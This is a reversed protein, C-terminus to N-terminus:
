RPWQVDSRAVATPVNAGHRGPASAIIWVVIGFAVAAIIYIRGPPRDPASM